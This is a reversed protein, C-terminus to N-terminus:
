IRVNFSKKSYKERNSSVSNDCIYNYAYYYVKICNQTGPGNRQSWLQVQREILIKTERPKRKGGKTAFQRTHFVPQRLKKSAKIM